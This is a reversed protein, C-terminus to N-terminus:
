KTKIKRFSLLLIKCCNVSINFVWLSLQNAFNLQNFWFWNLGGFNLPPQPIGHIGVFPNIHYILTNQVLRSRPSGSTNQMRPFGSIPNNQLLAWTNFHIQTFKDLANSLNPITPIDYGPIALDNLSHENSMNLSFFRNM